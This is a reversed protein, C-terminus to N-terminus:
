RGTGELDIQRSAELRDLNPMEIDMVILDPHVQRALSVAARGDRAEGVVVHGLDMLQTRLCSRPVPDDGAIVIGFSRSTRLDGGTV